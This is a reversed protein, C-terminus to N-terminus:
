ILLKDKRSKGSSFTDKLKGTPFYPVADGEVICLNVIQSILALSYAPHLTEGSEQAHGYLILSGGADDPLEVLHVDETGLSRVAGGNM